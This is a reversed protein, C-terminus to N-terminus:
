IDRLNGTRLYVTKLNEKKLNETRLYGTRLNLNILLLIGLVFEVIYIYYVNNLANKHGIANFVLLLRTVCQRLTM